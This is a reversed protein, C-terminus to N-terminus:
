EVPQEIVTAEEVVVTEQASATNAAFFMSGCAAIAFFLKTKM